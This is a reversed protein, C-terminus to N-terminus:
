ATYEIVVASVNDRAGRDLAQEILRDAMRWVPFRTLIAAIEADSMTGSLGDSCLLLIDGPEFGTAGNKSCWSTPRRWDLNTVVNALPHGAAAEPAIEGRDVLDQVHSQDRSLQRLRGARM